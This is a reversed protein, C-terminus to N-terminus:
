KFKKIETLKHMLCNGNSILTNKLEVMKQVFESLKDEDIKVKGVTGDFAGHDFSCYRSLMNFSIKIKKKEGWFIIFCHYWDKDFHECGRDTGHEFEITLNFNKVTVKSLEDVIRKMGDENLIPYIYETIKFGGSPLEETAYDYEIVKKYNLTLSFRQNKCEENNYLANALKLVKENM